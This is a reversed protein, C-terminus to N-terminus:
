TLQSQEKETALELREIRADEGMMQESPEGHSLCPEFWTVRRRRQSQQVEMAHAVSIQSETM